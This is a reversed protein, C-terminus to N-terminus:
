VEIMGSSCFFVCEVIEFWYRQLTQMGEVLAAFTVPQKM